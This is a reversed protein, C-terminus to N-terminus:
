RRGGDGGTQESPEVAPAAPLAGLDRLVREALFGKVGHPPYPDLHDQWVFTQYNRAGRSTGGIPDLWNNVTACPVRLYRTTLRSRVVGIGALQAVAQRPWDVPADVVIARAPRAGQEWARRVALVLTVVNGGKSHGLLTVDADVPLRALDAAIVEAALRTAGRVSGGPVSAWDFFRLGTGTELQQRDAPSAGRWSRLFRQWEEVTWGLFARCWPEWVVPNDYWGETWIGPVCYLVRREPPVAPAAHVIAPGDAAGSAGGDTAWLRAAAVAVGRLSWSLV